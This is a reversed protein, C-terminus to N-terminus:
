NPRNSRLLEEARGLNSRAPAHRPDLKLAERFHEAAEDLRGLRALATGLDNHVPALDARAGKELALRHAAVAEEVRNTRQLVNGLNNHAAPDDPRIRLAQRLYGEAERYRGMRTLANGLNNLIPASKPNLRLAELYQAVAEETRGLQFLADGSAAHDQATGSSKSLARQRQANAEQSQGLGELARALDARLFDMTPNLRLASRYAEAAAAFQGLKLLDAGLNSHANALRPDLRIAERHAAAAAEFQNLQFLVSGLNNHLTPERPSTEVAAQLQDRAGHLDAPSEHTYLLALNNRALWASPTSEITKLYLTKADRYLGAQDWTLAGAGIMVVPSLIWGPAGKLRSLLVGAAAVVAIVAVYQYHDAVLSYRMFYVDTFGMVPVLALCFFAWGFLCARALPYRRYWILVTTVAVAALVPLWWRPDGARIDWQPYVFSLAFPAVATYAYFWVVAGAGLAREVFGAERIADMGARAQFWINVLTLILSIAFFPATRLIDTRSIFGRRWWVILLLIPPLVAASGKALMAATFAVLSAIYWGIGGSRTRRSADPPM